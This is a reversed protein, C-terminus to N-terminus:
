RNHKIAAILLLLAKGDAEAAKRFAEDAERDKQAKEKKLIAAARAAFDDEDDDMFSKKKPKELIPFPEEDQTEPNYSPPEYGNSLPQYSPPEYGSSSHPDYSHSSLLDYAPISPSDHDTKPPEYSSYPSSGEVTHSVNEFPPQQIPAVPQYSDQQDLSTSFEEPPAVPM